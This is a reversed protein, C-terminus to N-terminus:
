DLWINEGTPVVVILIGYAAWLLTAAITFAILVVFLLSRDRTM